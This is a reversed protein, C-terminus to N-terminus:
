AANHPICLGAKDEFDEDADIDQPGVTAMASMFALNAFLWSFIITFCLFTGFQYFFVLNCGFLPLSAGVSTITGSSLMCNCATLYLAGVLM